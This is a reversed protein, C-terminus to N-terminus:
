SITIHTGNGPNSTLFLGNSETCSGNGAVIATTRTLVANKGHCQTIHQKFMCIELASPEPSVTVSTETPSAPKGTLEASVTAITPRRAEPVDILFGSVRSRCSVDTVAVSLLM